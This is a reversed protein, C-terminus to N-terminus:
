SRTYVKEIADVMHGAADTPITQALTELNKRMTETSTQITRVGEYIVSATVSAQRIILGAGADVVFRANWFQEDGSAWPLPIFISPVRAIVTEIVTNAGSRGIFCM